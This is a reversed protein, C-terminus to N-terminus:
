MAPHNLLVRVFNGRGFTSNFVFDNELDHRPALRQWRQCLLSKMIKPHPQNVARQATRSQVIPIAAHMLSASRLLCVLYTEGGLSVPLALPSKSPQRGHDQVGLSEKEQEGGGRAWCGGLLGTFNFLM